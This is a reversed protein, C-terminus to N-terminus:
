KTNKEGWYQWYRLSGLTNMPNLFYVSRTRIVDRFTVYTASMLVFLEVPHVWFWMRFLADRLNWRADLYSNIDGYFIYTSALRLYLSYLAGIIYVVAVQFLIEAM